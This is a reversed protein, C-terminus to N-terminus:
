KRDFSGGPNLAAPSVLGAEHHRRPLIPSLQEIAPRRSVIVRTEFCDREGGGGLRDSSVGAIAVFDPSLLKPQLASTQSGAM